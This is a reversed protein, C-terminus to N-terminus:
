LMQLQTHPWNEAKESDTTTIISWPNVNSMWIQYELIVFCFIENIILLLYLNITYKWLKDKTHVWRVVSPQRCLIFKRHAVKIFRWLPDSDENEILFGVFLLSACMPITGFYFLSPFIKSKFVVDFLMALPIQLTMAITGILSSTLFCSRNTQNKIFFTLMQSQFNNSAYNWIFIVLALTSRIFSYWHIRKFIFGSIPSSQAIWVIRDRHFEVCFFNAVDVAFEM